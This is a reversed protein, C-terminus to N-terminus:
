AMGAAVPIRKVLRLHVGADTGTHAALAHAARAALNDGDLPVTPDPNELSVTVDEAATAVVDDFLSVAHFVTALEHFGDAAAPGVSLQLNVKAPARVTVSQM